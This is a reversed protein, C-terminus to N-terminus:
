KGFICIISRKIKKKRTWSSPAERRLQEDFDEICKVIVDKKINNLEKDVVQEFTDFDECKLLFPQLHKSAVAILEKRTNIYAM